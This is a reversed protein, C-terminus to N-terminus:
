GEGRAVALLTDKHVPDVVLTASMPATMRCWAKIREPNLGATAALAERRRSMEDLTFGEMVYDIADFHRDGVCAKPSLAVLGRSGARLINGFHLDGHLLVVDKDAITATLEAAIARAETVDGGHAAAHVFHAELWDAMRRPAAAPDGAGHLEALFAAYEEAPPPEPLEEIITGPVAELLVAGKSEALVGPVRGSPALQRLMRAQEALSFADPALKLVAPGQPTACRLLVSGYGPRLEEGIELDWLSGLEALRDPLKPVWRAAAKGYRGTLQATITELDLTM